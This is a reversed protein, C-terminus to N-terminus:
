IACLWKKVFECGFLLLGFSLQGFKLTKVKKKENTINSCIFLGLFPWSILFSILGVVLCAKVLPFTKFDRVSISFMNLM